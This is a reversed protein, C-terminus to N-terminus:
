KPDRVLAQARKAVQENGTAKVVQKMAESVLAPQTKSLKEGITLAAQSAEEKLDAVSIEKMVLTLADVSAVEGLAALVLKKEESRGALTLADKLQTFKENDSANNVSILRVYGRLALIKLTDDSASKALQAVDPLAAGSPWECLVRSATEQVQPNPDQVASRVTALAKPGGAVRLVRLLALKAPVTAKTFAECL